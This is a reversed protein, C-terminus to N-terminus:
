IFRVPCRGQSCNLYSPCDDKMRTFIRRMTIVLVSSAHHCVKRPRDALYVQPGSVPGALLYLKLELM